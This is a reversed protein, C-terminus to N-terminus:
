SVGRREEGSGNIRLVLGRRWGEKKEKEREKKEQARVGVFWNGREAEFTSNFRVRSPTLKTRRDVYQM